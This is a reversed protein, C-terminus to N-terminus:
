ERSGPYTFLPVIPSRPSASPPLRECFMSLFVLFLHPSRAHSFVSVVARPWSCVHLENPQCELIGTSSKFCLCLRRGRQLQNSGYTTGPSAIRLRVPLKSLSRMTWHPAPTQACVMVLLSLLVLSICQVLGSVCRIYCYMLTVVGCLSFSYVPPHAPGPDLCSSDLSLTDPTVIQSYTTRRMM